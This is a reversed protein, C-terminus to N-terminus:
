RLPGHPIDTSIKDVAVCNYSFECTFLSAILSHGELDSLTM